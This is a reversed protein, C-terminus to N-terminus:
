DLYEKCINIKKDKDVGKKAVDMVVSGVLFVPNAAKLLAGGIKKATEKKDAKIEPSSFTGEVKVPAALNVLSPMKPRPTLKLKLNETVMNAHGTIDIAVEDTDISSKRITAKGDKVDIDAIACNLKLKSGKGAIGSLMSTFLDAGWLKLAASKLKGKEGLLLIKGDMSSKVKNFDDGKGELNIKLDFEGDIDESIESYPMNRVDANFIFNGSVYSANADIKAGHKRGTIKPLDVGAVFPNIAVSFTGLGRGDLVMDGVSLAPYVGAMSLKIDGNIKFPVGLAISAKEEIVPKFYNLKVFKLCILIALLTFVINRRIRKKPKIKKSM